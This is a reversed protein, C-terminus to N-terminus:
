LLIQEILQAAAQHCSYLDEAAAYALANKRMRQRKGSDQM